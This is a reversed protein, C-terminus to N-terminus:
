MTCWLEKGYSGMGIYQCCWKCLMQSFYFINEAIKSTIWININTDNAGLVCIKSRPSKELDCQGGVVMQSFYISLLSFSLPVWVNINTMKASLHSIEFNQLNKLIPTFAKPLAILAMQLGKSFFLLFNQSFVLPLWINTNIKESGLHTIKLNQLNKLIPRFAIPFTTLSM